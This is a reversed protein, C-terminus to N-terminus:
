NKGEKKGTKKFSKIDVRKIHNKFVKETATVLPHSKLHDIAKKEKEIKRKETLVKPSLNEHPHNKELISFKVKREDSWFNKLFSETRKINKPEGLKEMLFDMKEPLGLYIFKEDKKLFSTYELLAGLFGNAKKVAHVFEVWDEGTVQKKVDESYLTKKKDVSKEKKKSHFDKEQYIDNKNITPHSSKKQLNFSSTIRPLMMLKFLLMEMNLVPDNSLNLRELGTLVVDFLLHIEETKLDSSFTKLEKIENDLFITEKKGYFNMKALLCNRLVELLEEVFFVPDLGSERFSEIVEFMLDTNHDNIARLVKILLDRDTLGLTSMVKKLTIQNDCFSILQDLLTLSDRISGKSEKALIWLAKEEFDVKEELCIKQLNNKIDNLSHNHFDFRQCRSLITLPIKRVETTALIFVVHDPPEELTKLLANFASTSLMHVEDIIYTKCVGYAPQYGITDRLERIHDVGNNSAGDIEIVDLHSGAKLDTCSRCQNCPTNNNKNQCLLTKAIIRATTTKGTGRPGTLLIAHPFRNKGLANVLTQTIHKQGVFDTFTQPRFKRAIVQYAM